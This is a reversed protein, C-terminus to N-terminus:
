RTSACLQGWRSTLVDNMESQGGGREASANENNENSVPLDYEEEVLETEVVLSYPDTNGTTFMFLRWVELHVGVAANGSEDVM